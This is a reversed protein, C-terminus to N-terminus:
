IDEDESEIKFDDEINALEPRKDSAKVLSPKGPPKVLLPAVIDTFNPKGIKKEMEGLALLTEPKYIETFGKAKLVEAVKVPDSYQRVSRGEVLKLGPWKKGSLAEGFIHAEVAAMWDEFLKKRSHVELLEDDTLLEPAKFDMRQLELNYNALAACKAKARCFTCAKGPNFEGAGDYAMDAKPKLQTDAWKILDILKIEWSSINDIRPQYINMEIVDIDYIWGVMHYAGLAYIMMQPNHEAYVPVGKGHKYDNFIMKRQSPLIVISDATGFGEQIWQTMELRQEIFLLFDDVCQENVFAAYNEAFEMNSHSYYQSKLLEAMTKDAEFKSIVGHMEKLLLEGLAHVHSGEDAYVSSTNPFQQELVASPTCAMWRSAASPSLKAHVM